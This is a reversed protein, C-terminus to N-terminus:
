EAATSELQDLRDEHDALQLAHVNASDTVVNVRHELTNEALNLLTISHNVKGVLEGVRMLALQLEAVTHALNAVPDKPPRETDVDQNSM